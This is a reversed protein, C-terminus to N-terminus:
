IAFALPNGQSVALARQSSGVAKSVLAFYQNFGALGAIQQTGGFHVSGLPNIDVFLAPNVGSKGVVAVATSIFLGANVCGVGTRVVSLAVDNAPFFIAVELAGGKSPVM